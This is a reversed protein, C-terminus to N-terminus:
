PRLGTLTRAPGRRNGPNIAHAHGDRGLYVLGHEAALPGALPLVFDRQTGRGTDFTYFWGGYTGVSMPGFTAALGRTRHGALAPLLSQSRPSWLHQLGIELVKVADPM